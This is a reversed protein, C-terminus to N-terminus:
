IEVPAIDCGKRSAVDLFGGLPPPEGRLEPKLRVPSAEDGWGIEGYDYRFRDFLLNLGASSGIERIALPLGTERGITIFGPLLMGARAIENTQPPSDLGARLRLDHRKLAGAIAAALREDDAQNSPYASALDEDAGSLVVAHFAGCLRLAVADDRFNGPWNLVRHGTESTENLDRALLRCLRATFPSGLRECAAAQRRFHDRVNDADTM